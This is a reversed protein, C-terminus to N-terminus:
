MYVVLVEAKLVLNTASIILKKHVSLLLTKVSAAISIYIDLTYSKFKLNLNM